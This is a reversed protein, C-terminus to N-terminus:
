LIYTAHEKDTSFISLFSLIGGIVYLREGEVLNLTESNEAVYTAISYMLNTDDDYDAPQFEKTISLTAEETYLSCEILEHQLVLEFM